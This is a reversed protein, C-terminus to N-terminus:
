ASRLSHLESSSVILLSKTNFLTYNKKCKSYCTDPVEIDWHWYRSSTSYWQVCKVERTTEHPWMWPTTTPITTTTTSTTTTSTTTTTAATTTTTTGFNIYQLGGMDGYIGDVQFKIFQTDLATFSIDQTQVPDTDIASNMVADTIKTWTGTASDSNWLSFEKTGGNNRTGRRTNKVTVSNVNAVCSLDFIIYNTAEGLWFSHPSTSSDVANTLVSDAPYVTNDQSSLYSSVSMSVTCQSQRKRRKASCALSTLM